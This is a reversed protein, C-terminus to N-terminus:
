AIKEFIVAFFGDMGGDEVRMAPHTRLYGREHLAESPLLAPVAVRGIRADNHAHLFADIHAEGEEPELSCTCFLMRGGPKVWPWAHAMMAHQQAALEEIDSARLLHLVEPHRRWTGTASCPADLVVCDYLADPQFAFMDMVHADTAFGLRTMNTTFRAMRKASKDLATVQAGAAVLQATKGGPSAGIELVHLGKVEGLMKVPYSAAIDQVYFAGEAYGDIMAVDTGAPMRYCCDALAVGNEPVHTGGIYHVDISPAAEAVAAIARVTDAGYTNEWRTRLWAPINCIADALTPPTDAYRRLVVNTLGALGRFKSKKVAQVTDHVAAHAPVRMCIIQALGVRMACQVWHKSTPLPKDLVQAILADLQGLHRFSHLLMARVFRADEEALPKKSFASSDLHEPPTATRLAHDLMAIAITRTTGMPMAFGRITAYQLGM